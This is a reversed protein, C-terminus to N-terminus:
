VVAQKVLPLCLISRVRKQAIYNDSSFLNPAWADDLIVSEQTRIVYKLLSEPLGSHAKTSGILRVTIGESSTTAEADIRQAADQPLILLARNAGAHEVAIRMLTEVLKEL